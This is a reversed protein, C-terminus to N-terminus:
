PAHPVRGKPLSHIHDATFALRSGVRLGSLGASARRDVLRGQFRSGSIRTVRVLRPEGVSSLSGTLFTLKVFDGIRLGRIAKRLEVDDIGVRRRMEEINEIEVHKGM